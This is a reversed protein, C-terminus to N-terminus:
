NRKEVGRKQLGVHVVSHKFSPENKHGASNPREQQDDSPPSYINRTDAACPLLADDARHPNLCVLNLSRQLRNIRGGPLTYKAANNTM